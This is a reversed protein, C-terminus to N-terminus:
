EAAHALPELEVAVGTLVSTGTLTDIARPDTLDNINAGQAANAVRLRAGKAKHGWGHPLSVVGPMIADTVVAQVEVAGVSSSLRVWSGDAVGRAAADAPHLFLTCSPKGRVLRESNQLWTNNSRAHRRGILVLAPPPRRLTGLARRLDATLPEPALNVAKDPTNLRAPLVPVLPGLDIGDPAARLRSLSLAEGRLPNRLRGYPGSQLGADILREVGSGSLAELVTRTGRAKLGGRLRLLETSIGILTDGDSRLEGATPLVPAHYRAHNRIAVGLLALPFHDRELPSPPPIILHARSSTATVYMDLSVVFDLQDLARALRPGDPSSQVPNGACLLMARIQGDGPTEIEEALAAVPLEGGFEPLGSVRSRWVGFHGAQGGLRALGALDVPPTAFMMGGPRDLNGSVTSIALSLWASLGGFEQVCVGLRTYWAAGDAAAYERAIRRTTEADIGTAAAVQEPAFGRLADRLTDVGRTWRRWEGDRLGDDFLTHLVAAEFLADTGPRIFHHEDAVEATETRRPDVVVIRGGRKRLESLRRAPGGSTMFSGHSALPNGGVIVLHRTRELDPVPLLLQHGFMQLSAFMHPLQDLSTASFRNRTKLVGSCALASVLTRYNHVNPNGLYIGVANRGHRAQAQHLQQAAERVAEEWPVPEWRDGVRRVPTRLRDPDEHLDKLAVAKPCVHGRSFVDDPNGRISAVREGDHEVLIGCLCECIPCTSKSIM